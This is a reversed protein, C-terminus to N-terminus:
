NLVIPPKRVNVNANQFLSSNGRLSILFSKNTGIPTWNFAVNWCHINRYLNVNFNSLVKNKIDYMVRAAVKWNETISVDGTLMLTQTPLYRKSQYTAQNSNLNLGFVHDITVKWPIDFYVVQNPNLLWNQYQPNWTNALTANKKQLQQRSEKSTLIFSTALTASRIRGLGQGNRLAYKSLIQGTTDNWAYWSHSATLTFNFYQSPNIVLKMSLDSWNMSDKFIDYSNNLFFNDIVKMKKFGTVTDKDSKQKLEFTNNIGFNITGSSSTLGDTYLSREFISYRFVKGSTDTYSTVGQQISPTYNFTVTPTMVHRLLTKRKGVFRYYSYLTSTLSLSGSIKHTFGPKQLTDIILSDNANVRKEISQFNVTQSYNVSPTIRITSRLANFTAQLTFRQVAGNRFQQGISDFDGNKLYRDKYQARNQFEASYSLGVLKNIRKFPFIRSTTQFNIIPSTLDNTHSTSNQRLSFKASASIPKGGFYKDVRIDSNLTNNFYQANQVNLTQKNTSNSNFNVNASFRLNPNAKPDQNHVWSLKTTNIVTSDPFGFRIRMFELDFNGTYKYKKAYESYDRFGFTGRSYVTGYVITQFRDSIPFYYGLYQIGMGYSSVVSYQPMIFGNQRDKKDKVPIISFPLGLPTPVGMIWLNMPGTVIRKKPVMVAKSLAFHFHPEELNCTTFKGHVFHVEDNPQKKAREMTLYYESEQMAVEEIYGKKTDFNYRISAARLTDGNELFVPKGFKNGLSDTGYTAFVENKKLDITIYEAHMEVDEYQIFANGFLFVQNTRVDVYGSDQSNYTVESELDSKKIVLRKVGTTDTKEQTFASGSVLFLGLMLLLFRGASLKGSVVKLAKM